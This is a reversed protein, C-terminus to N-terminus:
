KEYNDPLKVKYNKWLNEITDGWHKERRNNLNSPEFVDLIKLKNDDDQILVTGFYCKSSDIFIQFYHDYTKMYTYSTLNGKEVELWLLSLYELVDKENLFGTISHNLIISIVQENFRKCFRRQPFKKNRLLNLIFYSNPTYGYKSIKEFAISDQVKREFFIFRLDQFYKENQLIKEFVCDDYLNNSIYRNRQKIIKLKNKNIINDVFNKYKIDIKNEKLYNITFITDLQNNFLSNGIKLAKLLYFKAKKYDETYFLTKSFNLLDEEFPEATSFAKNYYFSITDKNKEVRAKNIFKNYYHYENQSFLLNIFLLLLFYLKKNIFNFFIENVM